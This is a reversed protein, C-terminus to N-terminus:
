KPPFKLCGELAAMDEANEVVCEVVGDQMSLVVPTQIVYNPGKVLSVKVCEDCPNDLIANPDADPIAIAMTRVPLKGTFYTSLLEHCHDCDERYFIVIWRGTQLDAPVGGSILPALSNAAFRKGSANGFEAIYFPDLKSPRQPWAPTASRSSTPNAIPPRPAETAASEGLVRALEDKKDVDSCVVTVIGDKLRVIVPTQVLYNPSANGSGSGEGAKVRYLSTTVCGECPMALTTGTTDLISVKLVREKRPAAFHERYLAQCHDCDPRSFVVLWDGKELDGPVPREIALALKQARFPKGIWEGWKPFYNKEYKAPAAPWPGSILGPDSQHVDAPPTEGGGDSGVEPTPTAVGVIAGIVLPVWVPARREFPARAIFALAALLAGDIALMVSAPLGSKGFCGCSGAIAAALGDKLGAQVMAIVLIVCFLGLTAMAIRRGWDSLLVALVIFVEAGIVARLSWEFFATADVSTNDVVWQLAKMIPPPLLLPNFETAKKFAGFGIWGATAIQLAITMARTLRTPTPASPEASTAPPATM